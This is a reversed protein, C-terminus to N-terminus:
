WGGEKEFVDALHGSIGSRCNDDTTFRIIEADKHPYNKLVKELVSLGNDGKLPSQNNDGACIIQCGEEMRTVLAKVQAPTAGQLEDALIITDAGFSLGQIKEIPVISIGSVENFLVESVEMKFNNRLVGVGLYEKLKVLMSMCFPLLKQSDNGTVAGYDNGLQQHPRCIIINNVKGEVWLKSAWWCMLQSKGVGASGSLVILQKETFAKLAKRQNDNKAYLPKISKIRDEIFKEKIVRGTEAKRAMRANKVMQQSQKAM